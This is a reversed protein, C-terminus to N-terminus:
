KWHQEFYGPFQHCAPRVSERITATLELLIEPSFETATDMEPSLETRTDETVM